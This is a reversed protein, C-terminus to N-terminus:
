DLLFLVVSTEPSHSLFFTLYFSLPHTIRKRFPQNASLDSPIRNEVRSPRDRLLSLIGTM